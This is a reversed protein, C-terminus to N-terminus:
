GIWHKIMDVAPAEDDRLEDVEICLVEVSQTDLDKLCNLLGLQPYDGMPGRVFARWYTGTVYARELSVRAGQDNILELTVLGSNYRKPAMSLKVRRVGILIRPNKLPPLVDTTKTEVDSGAQGTSVVRRFAVTCPPPFSFMNFVGLSYVGHRHLTNQTYSRLNPLFVRQDNAGLFEGSYSIELDELLPCSRLFNLLSEVISGRVAADNTSYIYRFKFSTLCPVHFPISYANHVALSIISPLSWSIAEDAPTHPLDNDDAEDDDYIDDIIELRGLAPV